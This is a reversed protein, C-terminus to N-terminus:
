RCVAAGAAAVCNSAQLARPRYSPAMLKHQQKRRFEADRQQWTVGAPLVPSPAGNPRIETVPMDGAAFKNDSYHVVGKADVWKYIQAQALLPLACLLFTPLKPM